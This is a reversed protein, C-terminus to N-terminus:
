FTKIIRLTTVAHEFTAVASILSVTGNFGSKVLNEKKKSNKEARPNACGGIDMLM